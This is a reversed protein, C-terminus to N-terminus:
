IIHTLSFIDLKGIIVVICQYDFYQNTDRIKLSLRSNNMNEALVDPTATRMHLLPRNLICILWAYSLKNLFATLACTFRKYLYDNFSFYVICM